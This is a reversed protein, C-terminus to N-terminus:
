MIVKKIVDHTYQNHGHLLEFKAGEELLHHPAEDALFYVTAEASLATPEPMRPMDLLLTWTQKGWAEDKEFHVWAQFRIMDPKKTGFGPLIWGRKPDIAIEALAKRKTM